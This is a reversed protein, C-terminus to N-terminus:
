GQGSSADAGAEGDLVLRLAFSPCAAVADRVDAEDAPAVDCALVYMMGDPRVEFVQPALSECVGVSQCKDYDVEVRM